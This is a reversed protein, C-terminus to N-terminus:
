FAIIFAGYVAFNQRDPIGNREFVKNESVLGRGEIRFLVNEYFAYDINLSYGLTKFGTGSYIMVQEPDSYYEGRLAASWKKLSQYRLICVPSYWSNYATGHKIQQEFGLDFGLTIGWKSNWQFIGYLNHFYRMKRISDPTNSGVFSSSNLIWKKSPKFTLQHGIGPATYGKPQQIHQWGNLGLLSFFWREKQDAYSLKIGSEYYPSNDALMSRSLTWCDKGLPSEFGIHSPFVGADFWIRHKKSLQIGANAEYINKLVGPESSLNANSYTGAMFALNARVRRQEFNVKIFGLNIGLENHRNHSFMFDPREHDDPNGFDYGYYTELYASVVIKKFVSDKQAMLTTSMGLLCFLLIKM